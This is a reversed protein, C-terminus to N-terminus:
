PRRRSRTGPSRRSARTAPWCRRCPSSTRSCSRSSSSRGRSSSCSCAPPWSARGPSRCWSSSSRGSAPGRRGGLGGGRDGAAPPRLLEQAALDLAAAHLDPVHHGAGLAHQHPGGARFLAYFPVVLAIGPVVRTALLFLFGARSGRFRYRSYAYGALGGIVLNTFAVLLGIMASYFLASACGAARSPPTSAPSTRPPASCRRTTTSRPIQRPIWHPPQATM